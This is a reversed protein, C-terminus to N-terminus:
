ADSEVKKKIFDPSELSIDAFYQVKNVTRPQKIFSCLSQDLVIFV